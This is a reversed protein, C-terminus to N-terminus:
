STPSPQNTPTLTVTYGMHELAQIHTQRTRQTNHTTAYYDAGLEHFNLQPNALLYWVATIISRGTAIIAIKGGRRRRIRRYRDGLFTNTLKTCSATQGLIGALYSPRKPKKGSKTKSASQNAIPAFKAWSALNKPTPFQAMNVGVEGILGAATIRSVGPIQALQDLQREYPGLEVELQAEVATIKHELDDISHLMNDLLFGHHTTFMGDLADVLQDMKIRLRGKAMEAMVKPDREGRILAAMIARGSVGFIDSAVVSVKICADELLKEVRNKWRTQEGVLDIRHRTLARIRRIEIPPVFSPRLMGKQALRALWMSDLRDTKPRGPVHKFDKANVLVVNLGHAELRYFVPRWYDSTAEMVVVEVHAALLDDALRTLAVKTTDYEGVWPRAGPVRVCCMVSAKGIDIGAAREVHDIDDDEVAKDQAM